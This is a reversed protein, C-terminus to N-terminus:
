SGGGALVVLGVSTCLYRDIALKLHPSAKYPPLDVHEDLRSSGPNLNLPFVEHGQDRLEAILREMDQRRYISLGPSELTEDNSSINYETTHVAIGGPRLCRVSNKVFDLGHRLSGLHEFACSSWTFDYGRLDEPIQNMDVVRFEARERFLVPDCFRWENLMDLSSSHQNTTAWGQHHAREHDLDTATIFCGMAAMVAPMPERGCGFGLGRKGPALMGHQRLVELIFVFEWQKRNFRKPSRLRDCWERYVPELCQRATALQSTPRSLTPEDSSPAGLSMRADFFNHFDWYLRYGGFLLRNTKMSRKLFSTMSPSIPM